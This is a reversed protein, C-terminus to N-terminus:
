CTEVASFDHGYQLLVHCSSRTPPPKTTEVASFDHGFQLKDVMIHYVDNIPFNGRSFPRPRISAGEHDSKHPCKSAKGRSFLRPRISALCVVHFRQSFRITEVASLDHGFQLALKLFPRDAYCYTEAASLDHGFQLMGIGTMINKKAMTEVASLDHGFQLPIGKANNVAERLEIGRSLLRPRISAPPLEFKIGCSSTTEVASLDHGFQLM